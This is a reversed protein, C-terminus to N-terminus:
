VLITNLLESHRHYFKSVAKCIKYRFGQKLFKATLSQNTKDFDDVNSSQLFVM